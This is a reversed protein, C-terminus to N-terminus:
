SIKGVHHTLNQLTDRGATEVVFKSLRFRHHFKGNDYEQFPNRRPLVIRKSQKLEEKYCVFFEASIDNNIAM